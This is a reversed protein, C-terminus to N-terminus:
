GRGRREKGKGFDAPKVGSEKLVYILFILGLSCHKGFVLRKKGGVGV